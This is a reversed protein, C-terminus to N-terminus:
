PLLQQPMHITHEPIGAKLLADRLAVEATTRASERRLIKVRVGSGDGRALKALRAIQTLDAPLYSEKDDTKRLTLYDRGDILVTLVDDELGTNTDDDPEEPPTQQSPKATATTSLAVNGQVGEGGGFGPIGTYMGILFAILAVIGVGKAVRRGTRKKQAM